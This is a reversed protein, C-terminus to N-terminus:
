EYQKRMDSISAPADDPYDPVDRLVRRHAAEACIECASQFAENYKSQRDDSDLSDEVREGVKVCAGHADSAASRYIDILVNRIEVIGSEGFQKALHDKSIKNIKGIAEKIFYLSM